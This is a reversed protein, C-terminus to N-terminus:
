DPRLLIRATDAVQAAKPLAGRLIQVVRAGAARYGTLKGGYIAVYHTPRSRDRVFLTGRPRHFPRTNGHPLVRLGSFSDSFRLSREPFYHHVTEQLYTLEEPLPRVLAPDGSYPSETTGVLTQDHWPMVFIARRDRPAEVYYVGQALRDPLIMHTGQVLEIALRPPAPTVRQAVLDIWPGAANVLARSFREKDAGGERVVIRYGEDLHVASVFEAPCAMEAGLDIASRMVARTLAADDTQADHYRWVAQLGDTRLGDLGVWNRRPVMAFRTGPTLGGLLAYLSLGIGVKWPRRATDRFIPIYFPALRVLDPALSLLRSREHLSEYVLRLQANELYRLGGHVLKSSRGSTGSALATQEVLLTRYGAASAAQAVGVGHIGGGVVVIDYTDATM